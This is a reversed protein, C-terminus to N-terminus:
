APNRGGQPSRRTVEQQGLFDGLLGEGALGVAARNGETLCLTPRVAASPADMGLQPQAMM